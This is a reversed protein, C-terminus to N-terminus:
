EEKAGGIRPHLYLDVLITHWAPFNMLNDLHHANIPSHYGPDNGLTGVKYSHYSSVINKICSM